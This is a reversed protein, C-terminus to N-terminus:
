THKLCDNSAEEIITKLSNLKMEYKCEFPRFCIWKMQKLRNSLKVPSWRKMKHRSMMGRQGTRAEGGDEVEGGCGGEGGGGGRLGM